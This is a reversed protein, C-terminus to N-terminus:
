SSSDVSGLVWQKSTGPIPIPFTLTIGCSMLKVKSAGEVLDSGWGDTNHPMQERQGWAARRMWRFEAVLRLGRLDEEM